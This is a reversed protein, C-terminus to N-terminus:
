YFGFIICPIYGGDDGGGGGEIRGVKNHQGDEDIM